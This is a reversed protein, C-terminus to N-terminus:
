EQRVLEEKIKDFVYQPKISYMCIPYKYGKMCKKYWYPVLGDCDKCETAVININRKYGYYWIPTPGAVVACKTGLQSALHVLGGECDIHLISNKLVYKVFEFDKGLLYGDVNELKPADLGGLQIVEIDPHYSKIMAILQELYEKPWLKIKVMDIGYNTTIYKRGVNWKNFEYEYKNDLYIKVFPKGTPLIGGNGIADYRNLGWFKCRMMFNYYDKEVGCSFYNGSKKLCVLKKYLSKSIRKVRNSDIYRLESYHTTKIAFDYYKAYRVHFRSPYYGHVEKHGAFVTKAFILKNKPVFIDVENDSHLQTIVEVIKLLVIYDGLSGDLLFAWYLKTRNNFKRKKILSAVRKIMNSKETIEQILRM